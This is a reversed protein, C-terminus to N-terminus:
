GRDGVEPLEGVAAVRERDVVAPALDGLFHEVPQLLARQLAAERGRRLAGGWAPRPAPSRQDPLSPDVLVPGPVAMRLCGHLCTVGAEDQENARRHHDGRDHRGPDRVPDAQGPQEEEEAQAQRETLRAQAGAANSSAVTPTATVITTTASTDWQSSGSSQRSEKRSPATSAGVSAAATNETRRLSGSGGRSAPVSSASDPSFSGGATSATVSSLPVPGCTDPGASM